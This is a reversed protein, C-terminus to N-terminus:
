KKYITFVKVGNRFEEHAINMEPFLKKDFRHTTVFYEMQTYDVLKIKTKVAENLFNYNYIGPNHAVCVKSYPYNTSIFELAQKYSIGWYDADFNESPNKGAFANFYTQQYPHLKVIQYLSYSVSMFGFAFFITKYKEKKLIESLSWVSLLLLSPYVFYLHRWDDYVVSRFMLVALIPGLVSLFLFLVNIDKNFFRHLYKFFLYIFSSIGTMVIIVYFTPISIFFWKFLYHHPLRPGPYYNGEFLVFDEWPFASMTKFSEAFRLIPNEWLYPWFAYIGVLTIAISLLLHKIYFSEKKQIFKFILFTGFLLPLLIGPIRVCVLVAFSISAFIIRRYDPKKFYMIVYYTSVIYLVLFPIDKSNIFSHGFIRPSTFVLLTIFLAPIRQNYLAFGSLYLFCLGILFFLHNCLHRSRYIGQFSQISLSKQIGILTTEYAPGYVRDKFHALSDSGDKVYDYTYKGVKQQMPEDWSIGYDDFIFISIIFAVFLLFLAPAHYCIKATTNQYISKLSLM